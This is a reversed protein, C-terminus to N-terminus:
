MISRLRARQRELVQLQELLRGSTAGDAPDARQLRSHLEDAIRVMDKDFLRAIIGRAYRGVGNADEAPLPEVALRGVFGRLQEPAAELVKEPWSAPDALGTRIGGAAKMAEHVARHAPDSFVKGNLGDFLTANVFTPQQLAVQLAGREVRM